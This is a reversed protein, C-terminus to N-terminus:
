AERGIWVYVLRNGAGVEAGIIKIRGQRQAAAFAGAIQRPRPPRGVLALLDDATFPRWDSALQELASQAELRWRNAVIAGIEAATPIIEASATVADCPQTLSPEALETPPAKRDPPRRRRSDPPSV